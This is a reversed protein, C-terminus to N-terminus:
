KKQFEPSKRKYIRAMVFMIVPMLIPIYIAYKTFFLYLIGVIFFLIPVIIARFSYYSAWSKSLGETLERKPNSVYRWLVYNMIGLFCINCVYIVVPSKFLGYIYQSYFGTSFPM